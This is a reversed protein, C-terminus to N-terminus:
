KKSIKTLVKGSHSTGFCCWLIKPTRPAMELGGTRSAKRSSLRVVGRALQAVVLTELTLFGSKFFVALRFRRFFDTDCCDRRQFVPQSRIVVDLHHCGM